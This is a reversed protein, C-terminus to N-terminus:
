GFTNSQLLLFFFFFFFCWTEGREVMVVHLFFFFFFFFSIEPNSEGAFSLRQDQSLRIWRHLKRDKHLMLRVIWGPSLEIRRRLKIELRPETRNALFAQNKHQLSVSSSPVFDFGLGPSWPRPTKLSKSQHHHHFQASSSFPPFFSGSLSGSLPLFFSFVSFSLLWLFFSFSFFHSFFTLPYLLLSTVGDVCILWVSTLFKCDQWQTIYRLFQFCWNPTKPKWWEWEFNKLKLSSFLILFDPWVFFITHTGCKKIM